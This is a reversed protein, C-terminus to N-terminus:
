SQSAMYQKLAAIVVKDMTDDPFGKSVQSYLRAPLQVTVEVSEGLIRALEVGVIAWIYGAYEPKSLHNSVPTPEPLVADREHLQHLHNIVVMRANSVADAMNDGQAQLSPIDPVTVYYQNDKQFIAIPYQM